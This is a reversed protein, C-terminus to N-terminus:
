RRQIDGGQRGNPADGCGSRIGWFYVTEAVYRTQGVPLFSCACRKAIRRVPAPPPASQANHDSVTGVHDTGRARPLATWARDLTSRGERKCDLRHDGGGLQRRAFDDFDRPSDDTVLGAASVCGQAIRPPMVLHVEDRTQTSELAVRCASFREAYDVFAIASAPAVLV